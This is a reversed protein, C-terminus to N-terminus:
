QVGLKQVGDAVKGPEETDLFGDAILTRSVTGDSGGLSRKRQSGTMPLLTCVPSLFGVCVLTINKTRLLPQYVDKKRLFKLSSSNCYVVGDGDLSAMLASVTQNAHSGLM